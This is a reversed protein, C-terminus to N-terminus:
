KARVPFLYLFGFGVLSTLQYTVSYVRLVPKQFFHSAYFFGKEQLSLSHKGMAFVVLMVWLSLIKRITVLALLASPSASSGGPLWGFSLPHSSDEKRLGSLNKLKGFRGEGM